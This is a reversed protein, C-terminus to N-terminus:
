RRWVLEGDGKQLKFLTFAMRRAVNPNQGVVVHDGVLEIGGRNGGSYAVGGYLDALDVSYTTSFSGGSRSMRRFLRGELVYYAGGDVRVADVLASDYEDGASGDSDNLVVLNNQLSGSHPYAGCFVPSGGDFAIDRGTNGINVVWDPTDPGIASANVKLAKASNFLSENM